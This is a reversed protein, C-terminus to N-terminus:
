RSGDRCRPASLPSLRQEILAQIEHRRELLQSRDIGLEEALHQTPVGQAVGRLLLVIQSCPYRSGSWLTGTFLNFVAGCERCRYDVLPDRHRDHPHQGEPLRHGHPCHLGEPHLVKLLYEYCRREDLLEHIPFRLM